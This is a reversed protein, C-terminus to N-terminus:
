MFYFGAADGIAESYAFAIVVHAVPALALAIRTSMSRRRLWLALGCGLVATAAITANLILMVWVFPPPNPTCSLCQGSVVFHLANIGSLGYLGALVGLAIAVYFWFSQKM